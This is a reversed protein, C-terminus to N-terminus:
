CCCSSWCVPVAGFFGLSVVVISDRASVRMSSPSLWGKFCIRILRTPTMDSWGLVSRESWFFALKLNAIEPSSYPFERRPRLHLGNARCAQTDREFEKILAGCGRRGFRIKVGEERYMASRHKENQKRSSFNGETFIVGGLLFRRGYHYCVLGNAFRFM